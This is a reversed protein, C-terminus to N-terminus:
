QHLAVWEEKRAERAVLILHDPPNLSFTYLIADALRVPHIGYVDTALSCLEPSINCTPANM